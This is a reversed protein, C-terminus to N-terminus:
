GSSRNRSPPILPILGKRRAQGTQADMRKKGRGRARGGTWSVPTWLRSSQRRYSLERSGEIGLEHFSQEVFERVRILRAKGNRTRLLHSGTCCRWMVRLTIVPQM